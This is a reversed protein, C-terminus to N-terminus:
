LLGLPLMSHTPYGFKTNRETHSSVFQRRIDNLLMGTMRTGALIGTSIRLTVRVKQLIRVATLRLASCALSIDIVKFGFGFRLRLTRRRSQNPPSPTM